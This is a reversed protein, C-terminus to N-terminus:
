DVVSVGSPPVPNKRVPVSAFAIGVASVTLAGVMEGVPIMGVEETNSEVACWDDVKYEEPVFLEPDPELPAPAPPTDDPEPTTGM